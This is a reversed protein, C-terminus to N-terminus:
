RYLATSIIMCLTQPGTLRQRKYVDLHTYSVTATTGLIRFIRKIKKRMAVEM